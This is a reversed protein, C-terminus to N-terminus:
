QTMGHTTLLVNPLSSYSPLTVHQLVPHWDRAGAGIVDYGAISARPTLMDADASVSAPDIGYHALLEPAAVSALISESAHLEPADPVVHPLGLLGPPPGGHEPAQDPDVAGTLPLVSAANLNAAIADVQRRAADVQAAPLTPLPGNMAEQAVWVVIQD